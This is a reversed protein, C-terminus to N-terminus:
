GEANKGAGSRSVPNAPLDFGPKGVPQGGWWVDCRDALRNMEQEIQQRIHECDTKTANAPVRFTRGHIVIVDTFPAPLFYRDWSNFVIKRRAGYMVPIIPKGTARALQVTGMKLIRPPGQSGDVMMGAKAFNRRLTRILALMASKGGRNASGRVAKFGLHRAVATAYEGDKSQSIMMTVNKPGFYHFFYFMRQHWTAYICGQHRVILQEEDPAKLIKIVHCSRNWAKILFAILPTGLNLLLRERANFKYDVTDPMIPLNEVTSKKM